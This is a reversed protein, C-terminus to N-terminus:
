MPRDIKKFHSLSKNCIDCPLFPAEDITSGCVECVHIDLKMGEIEKAVLGFFYKSYKQIKQVKEKHQQHSKWSYMLNTIAEDNGELAAEKLFRPYINKIKELEKVAANSLNAKTDLVNILVPIYNTESGLKNIIRDYNVAHIKESLSFAQFMYAINPYKQDMAKKVYGNYHKHAIMESNFAQNLVSVTDPYIIAPHIDGTLAFGQSPLFLSMSASFYLYDRRSLKSKM